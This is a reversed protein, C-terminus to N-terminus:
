VAVLRLLNSRPHKVAGAFATVDDSSRADAPLLLLLGGRRATVAANSRGGHVPLRLLGNADELLNEAPLTHSLTTLCVKNDKSDPPVM